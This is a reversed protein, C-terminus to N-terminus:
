GIFATLMEVHKSLLEGEAGDFNFTSLLSLLQSAFAKDGGSIAEVLLCEAASYAVYAKTYDKVVNLANAGDGQKYYAVALGGTIFGHYNGVDGNLRDEEVAIGDFGDLGVFTPAYTVTLSYSDALIAKEVLTKLDGENGSKNYAKEAYRLSFDEMGMEGAKESVFAPAFLMCGLVALILAGVAAAFSILATKIVLKRM